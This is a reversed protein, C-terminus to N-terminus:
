TNLAATEQSGSISLVGQEAATHALTHVRPCTHAHTRHESVFSSLTAPCLPAGDGGGAGGIGWPRRMGGTGCM